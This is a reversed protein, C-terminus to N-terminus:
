KGRTDPQVEVTLTNEGEVVTYAKAKMMVKLAPSDVAVRHPGAPVGDVMGKGKLETQMTFTGDPRLIGISVYRGNEIPILRIEGGGDFPKGDSPVIAKGTVKHLPLKRPDDAPIPGEGCGLSLFCGVTLLFLLFRM